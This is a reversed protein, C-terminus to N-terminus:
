RSALVADLVRQRHFSTTGWAAVLARVKLLWLLGTAGAGVLALLLWGM